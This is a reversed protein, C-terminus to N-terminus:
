LQLLTQQATQESKELYWQLAEEYDKQAALHLIYSYSM